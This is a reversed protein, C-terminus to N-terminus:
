SARPLGRRGQAVFRRVYGAHVTITRSGRSWAAGGDGDVFRVTVQSHWDFRKVAAEVEAAIGHPPGCLADLFASGPDRLVRAEASPLGDPMLLPALVRRWSRRIEAGYDRAARAEEDTMGVAEAVAKYKLPDAAVALAAIQYARRADDDHEGRWDVDPTEGAEIMLSTVRAALVDAARDPLYVTLYYTAFADAATEENGLIPLDFERVLAHGLEHLIVFLTVDRAFASVAAAAADGEVVNPPAAPQGDAAAAPGSQDPGPAVLAIATLVSAVRSRVKRM